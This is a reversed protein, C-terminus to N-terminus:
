ENRQARYAGPTKGTYKRFVHCFYQHSSFGVELAIYTLSLDTSMLLAEAKKVRLRQLWDNPSMGTERKFVAFLHARSCGAREALEAMTLRESFREEMYASAIAVADIQDRTTEGRVHRAAELIVLGILLRISALGDPSPVTKRHELILGHLWTSMRQLPPSMAQAQPKIGHIQSAIWQREADTFLSEGAQRGIEFTVACIVSPTRVDRKARHLLGPRTIIFQGGGLELETGDKFEYAAAGRLLMMVEYQEHSHWRVPVARFGDSAAAFGVMPLGIQEGTFYMEDFLFAKDHRIAKQKPNRMLKLFLGCLWLPLRHRLFM